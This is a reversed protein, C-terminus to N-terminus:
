LGIKTIPAPRTRPARRARGADVRHEGDVQRDVLEGLQRVGSAARPTPTMGSTAGVDVGSRM